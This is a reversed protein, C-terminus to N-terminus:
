YGCFLVLHHRTDVTNVRSHTKIVCFFHWHSNLATTLCKLGRAALLWSVFLFCPELLLVSGCNLGCEQKLMVGSSKQMWSSILSLRPVFHVCKYWVFFAGTMSKKKKKLYWLSMKWFTQLNLWDLTPMFIHVNFGLRQIFVIFSNIHISLPNKQRKCAPSLRTEKHSRACRCSVRESDCLMWKCATLYLTFAPWWHFTSSQSAYVFNRSM